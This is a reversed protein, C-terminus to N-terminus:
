GPNDPSRPLKPALIPWEPTKPLRFDGIPQVRRGVLVRALMRVMAHRGIAPARELRELRAQEIANIQERVWALRAMDRRM